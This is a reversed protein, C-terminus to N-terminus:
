GPLLRHVAALLAEESFPKTMVENAGLIRAHPLYDMYRDSSGGSIALVHCDQSLERLENMTEIGDKQPMFIDLIVLDVPQEAFRTLGEVGDNAEIVQYGADELYLRLVDRISQDDDIILITAMAREMSPTTPGHPCIGMYCM